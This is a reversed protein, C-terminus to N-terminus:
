SERWAGTRYFRELTELHVAPEIRNEDLWRDNYYTDGYREGSDCILTVVAGHQGRDHMEAVIQLAGYLNTGTSGGYRRGFKGHLFRMAAFSAADPVRMMRDVVSAVFSPEVRPRGIGEILSPRDSILTADGTRHYDSFVSNEPDVVCLRTDIRRYRVYRGITASTGGTGAGCVVWRPVPHREETMQGFIAEAINNNGRWDTAREAYTFQDMFHGSTERALRHAEAYIESAQEVAHIRGGYFEIQALKETSTAKPVVAVFPLGLLRAFYAESIATSGSSAEIITTNREIWGNCLGYLFLSRALRHKLSGTPHTSEDKLYLLVEPVAPIDFRFLHTDASRTFDTEIRRIAEKLWDRSTEVM